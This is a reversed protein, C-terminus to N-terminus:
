PLQPADKPNGHAAYDANIWIQDLRKTYTSPMTAFASPPLNFYGENAFGEIHGDNFMINLRENYDHSNRTFPAPGTSQWDFVTATADQSFQNKGPVLLRTSDTQDLQRYAYSSYADATASALNAAIQPAANTDNDSPCVLVKPSTLQGNTLLGLGLLKGTAAVRIQNNGLTSFNRSPDIASPTTPGVPALGSNESAYAHLGNALQHLNEGCAALRSAEMAAELKPLLLALLVAIIGIVVLLELLSFAPRPNKM